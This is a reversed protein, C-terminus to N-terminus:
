KSENECEKIVVEMLEKFPGKGTLCWYLFYIM